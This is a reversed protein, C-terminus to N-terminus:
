LPYVMQQAEQENEAKGTRLLGILFITQFVCLLWQQARICLHTERLTGYYDRMTNVMGVDQCINYIVDPVRDSFGPARQCDFQSQIIESM